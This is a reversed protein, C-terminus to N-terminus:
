CMEWSSLVPLTVWWLSGSLFYCKWFYRLGMKFRSEANLNGFAMSFWFELM